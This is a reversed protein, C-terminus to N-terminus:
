RRRRCEPAHIRRSFDGFLATTWEFLNCSMEQIIVHSLIGSSQKLTIRANSKDISIKEAQGNAWVVKLEDLKAGDGLGIHVIPSLNHLTIEAKSSHLNVARSM